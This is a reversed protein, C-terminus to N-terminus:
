RHLAQSRISYLSQVALPKIQPVPKQDQIPLFFMLFGWIGALFAQLANWKNIFSFNGTIM